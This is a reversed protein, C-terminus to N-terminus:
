LAGLKDLIDKELYSLGSLSHGTAEQWNSLIMGLVILKEDQSLLDSGFAEKVGRLENFFQINSTPFDVKEHDRLTRKLELATERYSDPGQLAPLTLTQVKRILDADLNRSQNLVFAKPDVYPRDAESLFSSIQESTLNTVMSASGRSQTAAVISELDANRGELSILNIFTRVGATQLSEIESQVKQLAVDGGGDTVLVMNGVRLKLRSKLDKVLERLVEFHKDFCPQFCTGDNASTPRALMEYIVKLATERDRIRIGSYVASEFPYLDITHIPEGFPDKESLLKDILAAISSAQLRAKAGRMSGSIDFFVNTHKRELPSARGRYEQMRRYGHMYQEDKSVKSLISMAANPHPELDLIWRAFQSVDTLKALVLDESRAARVYDRDLTKIRRIKYIKEGELVFNFHKSVLSAQYAGVFQGQVLHVFLRTQDISGATLAQPYKKLIDERLIHGPLNNLFREVLDHQSSNPHRYRQFESFITELDRRFQAVKPGQPFITELETFFEYLTSLRDYSKRPDSYLHSKADTILAQLTKDNELVFSRLLKKVALETALEQRKLKPLKRFEALMDSIVSESAKELQLKKLNRMILVLAVYGEPSKFHRPLEQIKASAQDNFKIEHTKDSDLKEQDPSHKKDQSDQDPKEHPSSKGEHSSSDGDKQISDSSSKGDKADNKSSNKGQSDGDEASKEQYGKGQSRSANQNTVGGSQGQAQGGDNPKITQNSDSADQPKDILGASLLKIYAQKKKSTKIQDNEHSLIRSFKIM